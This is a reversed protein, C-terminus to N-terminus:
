KFFLNKFKKLIKNIFPYNIFLIFILEVFSLKEKKLFYKEYTIYEYGLFAAFSKQRENLLGFLNSRIFIREQKIRSGNLQNSIAILDQESFLSGEIRSYKELVTKLIIESLWFSYNKFNDSSLYNELQDKMFLTEEKNISFLQVTSSKWNKFNKQFIYECSRLYFENREYNSFSIISHKDHFLNLKKLLITDADIMILFDSNKSEDFLFSLKLVQQYYWGVRNLNEKNLNINNEKSIRLLIEKFAILSLYKEENIINLNNLNRSKFFDKFEGIENKPVIVSYKINNYFKLLSYYNEPIFSAKNLTCVSFFSKKSNTM